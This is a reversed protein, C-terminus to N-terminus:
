AIVHLGAMRGRGLGGGTRRVLLVERQVGQQASTRLGGHGSPGHRLDHSGGRDVEGDFGGKRGIGM